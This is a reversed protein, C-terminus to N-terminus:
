IINLVFFFIRNNILNKDSCKLLSNHILGMFKAYDKMDLVSLLWLIEFTSEGM